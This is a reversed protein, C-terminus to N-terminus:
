EELTGITYRGDQYMTNAFKEKSDKRWNYSGDRYRERRNKQSCQICVNLYYEGTHTKKKYFWKSLQDDNTYEYQNTCGYHYQDNCKKIAM